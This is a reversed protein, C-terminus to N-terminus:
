LTLIHAGLPLIQVRVYVSPCAARSGYPPYVLLWSKVESKRINQEANLAYLGDIRHIKHHVECVCCM